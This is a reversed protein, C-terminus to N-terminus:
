HRHSHPRLKELKELTTNDRIYEDTDFIKTEKKNVKVELPIIEDKFKGEDRAKAARQQSLLAYKDQDERFCSIKRCCKRSYNGYSRKYYSRVFATVLGDEVEGHGM